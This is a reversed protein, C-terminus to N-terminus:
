DKVSKILLWENKSDKFRILAFIGKLKKGHLVFELKGAKIGALFEKEAEKRDATHLSTYTGHDWIKVTGAGYNGAPITGEFTQYSLPHDEVMIALRKEHTDISPGKPVAWSKLVGDMELRLDYHLHSAAHKQVVFVLNNSKSKKPTGRPEPTDSFNRKKKYASLRPTRKKATVM